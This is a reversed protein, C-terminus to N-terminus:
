SMSPRRSLAFRKESLPTNLVGTRACVPMPLAVCDANEVTEGVTACDTEGGLAFRRVRHGDEELLRALEAQRADGGIVAFVM